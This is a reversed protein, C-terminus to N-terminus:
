VRVLTMQSAELSEDDSYVNNFETLPNPVSTEVSVRGIEPQTTTGVSSNDPPTTSEPDDSGNTNGLNIFDPGSPEKPIKEPSDTPLRPLRIPDPIDQMPGMMQLAHQYM